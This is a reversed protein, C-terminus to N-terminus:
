GPQPESLRAESLWRYREVRSLRRLDDPTDIDFGLGPLRVVRPNLRLATALELHRRFSDVGFSPGMVDHDTLVLANTGADDHSPAIAVRARREEALSADVMLLEAIEGATVLPVDAPLILCRADGEGRGHHLGARLAGNLSTPQSEVLIEAGLARALAAVEEDVTVVIMRTVAATAKLAALVDALMTLVLRRRADASLVTALRSKAEALAKVPVIAVTEVPSRPASM